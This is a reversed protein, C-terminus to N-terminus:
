AGWTLGHCRKFLSLWEPNDAATQNWSDNDKYLIRRGQAQLMEDTPVTGQDLQDKVYQGLRVTLVQWCTQNRSAYKNNICTASPCLGDTYALCSCDKDNWTLQKGGQTASFPDLTRAEDAIMFPPMANAVQSSTVDDFGWDGKWDKMQAGNRFHKSLHDARESWATFTQSCFGCRSTIHSLDICWTSSMSDTLPCGHVLRLHQRLHDKRYFTRAGLGKDQCEAHNHTEVHEASPSLTDCYVCKQIGAAPDTVMSGLPACIWKELSLHLSKEHRSWDYKSKFADTCFTCQFPRSATNRSSDLALPVTRQRRREKKAVSRFSGLSGHSLASSGNSASSRSTELSSVSPAMKGSQSSARSSSHRSQKRSDTASNISNFDQTRTTTAVAHAIDTVSAPEHEPPSHKWRELPNMNKLAPDAAFTPTNCIEMPVRCGISPSESRKPRAKGRRRANALWNTIQDRKLGTLAALREKQEDTPYPHDGHASLWEKLVKVAVRPFRTGVRNGPRHEFSNLNKVGTMAGEPLLADETLVQLTDCGPEKPASRTFSCERFLANCAVCGHTWDYQFCELKRGACYECPEVQKRYRPIWRCFDNFDDPREDQPEVSATPLVMCENCDWSLLDDAVSTSYSICM